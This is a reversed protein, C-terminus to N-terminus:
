ETSPVKSINDVDGIISWRSGRKNSEDVENMALKTTPSSMDLTADVSLKLAAGGIVASTGFLAVLGVIIAAAQEATNTRGAFRTYWASETVYFLWSGFFLIATAIKYGRPGGLEAGLFRRRLYLVILCVIAAVLFVTVSFVLDGAPVLFVPADESYNHGLAANLNRWRESPPDQNRWFMTAISWTMGLGLFVNVSNSGTVNGVSNDAYEEQVASTMSAFTDPLSTGLAVVTIATLSDELGATCGFLKALDGIAGTLVGIFFISVGFCPWGDLLIPPPVFAFVVKFPLSMFHLLWDSTSTEEQEESNEGGSVFWCEVFQRRWQRLSTKCLEVNVASDLRGLLVNGAEGTKEGGEIQITAVTCEEGGDDDPDFTAGGTPKELFVRFEDAREHSSKPMIDVNITQMADGDVFHLTGSTERYDFDPVATGHHTRYECCVEGVSGGIRLVVIEIAKEQKPAQVQMLPQRFKIIGPCEGGGVQVNAISRSGVAIRPCQRKDASYVVCPDSLVVSFHGANTPRKDDQALLIKIKKETEGVHFTCSGDKDRMDAIFDKGNVVM